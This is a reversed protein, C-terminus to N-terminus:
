AMSLFSKELRAMAQTQDEGSQQASACQRLRDAIVLYAARNVAHAVAALQVLVEDCDRDAELM